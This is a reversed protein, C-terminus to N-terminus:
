CKEFIVFETLPLDPTSHMMFVFLEKKIGIRM